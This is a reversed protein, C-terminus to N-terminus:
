RSTSGDTMDSAKCDWPSCCALGGQGKGDGLTQGLEHENCRHDWRAMEDESERKEKLGWDKEADPVIEILRRSAESSWFVPTEAEADTRGTLIWPKDGKLNVPKIEKSDLPSEPTKELVVTQLCWNKPMKGGKHDLEWLRIHGSPLGYGQSYSGKDASYHTQKEVCEPNTM